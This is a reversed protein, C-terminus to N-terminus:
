SQARVLAQDRMQTIEKVTEADTGGSDQQVMALMQDYHAVAEAFRGQAERLQAWREHGDLAEPYRRLLRQCLKEAEGYRQAQIADLARNSLKDLSTHFLKM